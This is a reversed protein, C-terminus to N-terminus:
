DKTIKAHFPFPPSIGKDDNKLKNAFIVVVSVASKDQTNKFSLTYKKIWFPDMM